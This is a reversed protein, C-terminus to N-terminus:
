RGGRGKGSKRGGSSGNGRESAQGNGSGAGGGPTPSSESSSNDTNSGSEYGSGGQSIPGSLNAVSSSTNKHTHDVTSGWFQLAALAILSLLVVILAYETLDQGDEGCFIWEWAERM